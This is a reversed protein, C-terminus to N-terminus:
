EMELIRRTFSTLLEGDPSDPKNYSEPIYVNEPPNSRTKLYSDDIIITNQPGYEPFEYWVYSLPKELLPKGKEDNM